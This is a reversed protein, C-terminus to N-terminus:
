TISRRRQQKEQEVFSSRRAIVVVVLFPIQRLKFFLKIYFTQTPQSPNDNRINIIIIVSSHNSTSVYFDQESSFPKLGCDIPSNFNIWLLVLTELEKFLYVCCARSLFISGALSFQAFLAFTTPIRSSFAPFDPPSSARTLMFVRFKGAAVVVVVSLFLFNSM